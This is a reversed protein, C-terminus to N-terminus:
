KCPLAIWGVGDNTGEGDTAFRLIGGAVEVVDEIETELTGYGIVAQGDEVGDHVRVLLKEVFGVPIDAIVRQLEDGAGALHQLGIQGLLLLGVLLETPIAAQEDPALIARINM